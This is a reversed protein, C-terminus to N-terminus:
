GMSIDTSLVQYKCFYKVHCINSEICNFAEGGEGPGNKKVEWGGEGEEPSNKRM